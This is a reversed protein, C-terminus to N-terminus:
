WSAIFIKIYYSIAWILYLTVASQYFEIFTVDDVGSFLMNEPCMYRLSWMVLCPMMHIYSSTLKDFSHPVMANNFIIVSWVVPGVAFSWIGLHL